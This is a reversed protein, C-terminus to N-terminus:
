RASAGRLAPRDGSDSVHRPEDAVPGASRILRFLLIYAVGTGLLGLVIVSGCEKWGPVSSPLRTAGFPTVLITAAVTAGAAIVLPETGRLLRSSLTAGVAYCLAAAVVALSALAGGKGPSGVLLAVGAFGILIGAWRIGSVRENAFKVAIVVTFIPVAAQLIATLSSDIRTEAWAFLMFPMATNILGVLLIALWASRAQKLGARGTAILAVPVLVVCGLLVRFWVLAAPDFQRDAVRIFMFSAGWILSLALIMTTDRRSMSLNYRGPVGGGHSSVGPRVSGKGRTRGLAAALSAGQADDGPLREVARETEGVPLERPDLFQELPRRVVELERDERHEPGLM